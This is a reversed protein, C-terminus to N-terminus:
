TPILHCYLRVAFHPDGLGGESGVGTAFEMTGLVVSRLNNTLFVQFKSFATIM